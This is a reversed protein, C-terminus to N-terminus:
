RFVVRGFRSSRHFNGEGRIPSWALAQRQGDRFSYLNLRWVDGPQPPLPVRTPRFATWPIAAEISYLTGPVVHIAREVRGSWSQSGFVRGAGEGSIPQNYDDWRTDFVAGATDIQIEFYQRNDGPDGPQIMLEIASSRSWIHPDVDDRNFPSSPKKDRVVAGVYLHDDDWGLRAFGAVPHSSSVSAGSGPDVFPGLEAAAKWVPEDLRGDLTPRTAFRQVVLPDGAITAAGARPAHMRSWPPGPPQCAGLLILVAPLAFRGLPRLMANM